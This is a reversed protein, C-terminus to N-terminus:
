NPGLFHITCRCDSSSQLRCPTDEWSHHLSPKLCLHNRFCWPCPILRLQSSCPSLGSIKHIRSVLQSFHSASVLVISVHNVNFQLFTRTPSAGGHERPKPHKGFYGDAVPIRCSTGPINTPAM